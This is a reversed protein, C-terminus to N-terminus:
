QLSAQDGISRTVVRDPASGRGDLFREIPETYPERSLKFTRHHVPLLHEAGAENSMRLAQEPTCHAYIWPDYAGIPM